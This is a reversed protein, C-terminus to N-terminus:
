KERRQRRQRAREAERYATRVAAVKRVEARIAALRDETRAVLGRQWARLVGAFARPPYRDGDGRAIYRTRYVTEAGVKVYWYRHWEIAFAGPTGRSEGQQRLRLTIEGRRHGGATRLDREAQEYEVIIGEALAELEAMRLRAWADISAEAAGAAAEAADAEAENQSYLLVSGGMKAYRDKPSAGGIDHTAGGVRTNAARAAEGRQHRGIDTM